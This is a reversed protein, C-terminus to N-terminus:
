LGLSGLISDRATLHELGSGWLEPTRQTIDSILPQSLAGLNWRFFPFSAPGNHATPLRPALSLYVSRM